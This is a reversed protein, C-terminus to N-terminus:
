DTIGAFLKHMGDFKDFSARATEANYFLGALRV